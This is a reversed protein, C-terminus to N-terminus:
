AIPKISSEVLSADWTDIVDRVFGDQAIPARLGSRSSRVSGGVTAAPTDSRKDALEIRLQLPRGFINLEFGAATQGARAEDSSAGARAFPAVSV